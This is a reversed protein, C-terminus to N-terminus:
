HNSCLLIVRENRHSPFEKFNKFYKKVLEQDTKNIEFIVEESKMKSLALEKKEKFHHLVNLCLIMDCKPIDDGGSWHKFTINGGRIQNIIKATELVPDSSDLGTVIAGEDEIKFSFYGHFCGLDCVKKNKWKVINKIEEWTKYSQSYGVFDLIEIDQYKSDYNEVPNEIRQELLFTNWGIRQLMTDKSTYENNMSDYYKVKKYKELLPIHTIFFERYQNHLDIINDPVIYKNIVLKIAFKLRNKKTIPISYKARMGTRKVWVKRDPCYVCIIGLKNNKEYISFEKWGKNIDFPIADIVFSDPLNKLIIKAQNEQSQYNHIHDFSIYELNNEEAYKQAFTTKGSGFVGTVFVKNM